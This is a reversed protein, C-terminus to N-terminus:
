VENPLVRERFTTTEAMLTFVMGALALTETWNASEAGGEKCTDGAGDTVVVRFGVLAGDTAGVNAGVAVGVPSGVLAGNRAGVDGGSSEVAGDNRGVALSM